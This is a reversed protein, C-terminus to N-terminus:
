NDDNNENILYIPLKLFQHWSDQLLASTSVSSDEEAETKAQM